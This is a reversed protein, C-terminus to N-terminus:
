ETRENLPVSSDYIHLQTYSARKDQDPLLAGSRHRLEGHISFPLPGRGNIVRNDMTAGLSMFANFANYQRIHKRFSCAYASDDDFLSQIMPPLVDLLPLRIKGQLSFTGFLPWYKPSKILREDSWYLASCSPSLIDMFGLNHRVEQVIQTIVNEVYSYLNGDNCFNDQFHFQPVTNSKNHSGKSSEGIEFTQNLLDNKSSEGYECTFSFQETPYVGRQLVKQSPAAFDAMPMEDVLNPIISAPDPDIKTSKSQTQPKLKKSDVPINLKQEREQKIRQGLARKTPMQEVLNQAEGAPITGGQTSIPPAKRKHQKGLKQEKGKEINSGDCQPSAYRDKCSRESLATLDATPIHEVLDEPIPIKRKCSQDTANIGAIRMNVCLPLSM